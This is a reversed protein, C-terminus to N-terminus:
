ACPALGNSNEFAEISRALSDTSADVAAAGAMDGEAILALVEDILGNIDRSRSVAVAHELALADPADLSALEDTMTGLLARIEELADVKPALEAETLEQDYMDRIEDKLPAAAAYYENCIADRDARYALLADESPGPANTAPAPGGSGGPATMRGILAGGVVAVVLAAAMVALRAPSFYMPERWAAGFRRQPMREVAQHVAILVRDRSRDSAEETLWASIQREVDRGANM